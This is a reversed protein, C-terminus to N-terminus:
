QRRGHIERVRRGQRIAAPARDDANLEAVFAADHSIRSGACSKWSSRRGCSIRRSRGAARRGPQGRHCIAPLRRGPRGGRAADARRPDADFQRRVARGTRRAVAAIGAAAGALHDHRAAARLGAAGGPPRSRAARRFAPAARRAAIQPPGMPRDRSDPRVMVPAQRLHVLVNTCRRLPTLATPSGSSRAIFLCSTAHGTRAHDRCEPHRQRAAGASACCFLSIASDRCGPM